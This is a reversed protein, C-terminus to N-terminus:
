WSDQYSKPDVTLAFEPDHFPRGNLEATCRDMGITIGELEAQALKLANQAEALRRQAKLAADSAEQMEKRDRAVLAEAKAIEQESAFRDISIKRAAHHHSQLTTKAHGKKEEAENVFRMAEYFAEQLIQIRERLKRGREQLSEWREALAYEHDQELLGVLRDVAGFPEVIEALMQAVQAAREKTRPTLSELRARAIALLSRLDRQKPIASQDLHLSSKVDDEAHVLPLPTEPLPQNVEFVQGGFGLSAAVIGPDLVPALSKGGLQEHIQQTIGRDM